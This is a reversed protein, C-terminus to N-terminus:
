RRWRDLRRRDRKSPRGGAFGPDPALSGFPDAPRSEPPPTVDEYLERADGPSQRRRALARVVLDRRGRDTSVRVRDGARVLRHPSARQGNVEIKGGSCAAQALPRTKFLRAALLWQDVRVSEGAVDGPAPGHGPRDM